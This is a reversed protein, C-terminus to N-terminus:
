HDLLPYGREQSLGLRSVNELFPVRGGVDRVSKKQPTPPNYDYNFLKYLKTFLTFLFQHQFIHQNSFFCDNNTILLTPFSSFWLRSRSVTTEFSIRQPPGGVSGYVRWRDNPSIGLRVTVARKLVTFSKIIERSRYSRLRRRPLFLYEDLRRLEGSM